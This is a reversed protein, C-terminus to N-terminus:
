FSFIMASSLVVGPDLVVDVVLVAPPAWLVVVCDFGVGKM